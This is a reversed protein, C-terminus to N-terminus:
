TRTGARSCALGTIAFAGTVLGVELDGGGLPGKVYRPLVPLTAGISLLGLATVVFIGAFATRAPTIAPRAPLRGFRHPRGRMSVSSPLCRYTLQSSYWMHAISDLAQVDTPMLAPFGLEDLGARSLDINYRM